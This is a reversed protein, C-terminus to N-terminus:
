CRRELWEHGAITWDNDEVLALCAMASTVRDDISAGVRKWERWADRMATITYLGQETMGEALVDQWHALGDGPKFDWWAEIANLLRPHQPAAHLSVQRFLPTHDIENRYRRSSKISPEGVKKEVDLYAHYNNSLQYMKGVHIDSMHAVFEHLVSMHVANAGYAGWIIDNSRNTITMDLERTGHTAGRTRFYVATNCPFDKSVGRGDKAGDWMQIVARRTNPDQRLTNIVHTIQDFGFYRRWRHGYSANFSVGDDSYAALPKAYVCISAVDDRGALMWLSEMLHFFPNADRGADLIVREMPRAYETMVPGPAVRVPGNRSDEVRGHKALYVMGQRYAEQVNRARIVKHM